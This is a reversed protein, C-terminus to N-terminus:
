LGKADLRACMDKLAAKLEVIEGAQEEAKKHEKLFENLLMANVEEYRVTFPKGQDDKAVLDPDVKEVQEAVLGFQPTAKPDLEKKYRFTVPQLSLIAESAKDMPKIAEKFRASSARVGLQGDATIGVGVAAGHTLPTGSIGAIYAVTQSTQSGIRIVGSEDGPGTTGVDINYSGHEILSGAYGGVAINYSGSQLNYLASYGIATNFGGTTNNDLAGAGFASNGGGTTNYFSASLGVATNQSGTTNSTLASQGMATNQYGTTNKYLAVFGTATNSLGTTNSLLAWKGIAVNDDGTTNAYLASSGIATNNSGSNSDFGTNSYLANFGVATNDTGGILSFLADQGEATNENPYGGDPPPDVALATAVSTVLALILFSTKM